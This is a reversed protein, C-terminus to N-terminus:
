APSDTFLRRIRRRSCWPQIILLLFSLTPLIDWLIQWHEYPVFPLPTTTDNFWANAEPWSQFTRFGVSGLFLVLGFYLVTSAVKKCRLPHIGRQSLRRRLTREERRLAAEALPEDPLPQQVFAEPHLAFGVRETSAHSVLLACEGFPIDLSDTFLGQQIAWSKRLAVNSAECGAPHKKLWLRFNSAQWEMSKLQAKPQEWDSTAEVYGLVLDCEETCQQHMRQLWHPSAPTSQPTVIVAWPARASRVGLTLALKRPHLNRHTQPVFTYRLNPHENQLRQVINRTEDEHDSADAVVIEFPFTTQQQLWLPLHREIWWDDNETAIVVSLEPRIARPAIPSNVIGATPAVFPLAEKAQRRMLRSLKRFSWTRCLGYTLGCGILLLSLTASFIIQLM